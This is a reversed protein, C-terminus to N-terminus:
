KSELTFLKPKFESYRWWRPVFKLLILKGSKDEEADDFKSGYVKYSDSMDQKDNVLYVDGEAQFEVFEEESFGVVLSSPYKKDFEFHACKRSTRETIFLFEFPENSNAFHLSASHPMGDPLITTLVSIRHKGLFNTIKEDM